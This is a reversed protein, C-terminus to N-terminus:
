GMKVLDGIKNECYYNPKWIKKHKWFKYKLKGFKYTKGVTHQLVSCPGNMEFLSIHAVYTPGGLWICNYPSPLM